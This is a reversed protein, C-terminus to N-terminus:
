RVFSIADVMEVCSRVEKKYCLCVETGGSNMNLDALHGDPSRDVKMYSNLCPLALACVPIDTVDHSNAAVRIANVECCPHMRVQIPAKRGEEPVPGDLRRDFLDRLAQLVLLGERRANGADVPSEFPKTDSRNALPSVNRVTNLNAPAGRRQVVEYDTPVFEGREPFIVIIESIPLKDASRDKRQCLYM